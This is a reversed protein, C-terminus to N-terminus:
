AQGQNLRGADVCFGTAIALVASNADFEATETVTLAGNERLQLRIMGTKGNRAVWERAGVTELPDPFLATGASYYYAADDEAKPLIIIDAPLPISCDGGRCASDFKCAIRKLAQPTPRYEWQSFMVMLTVVVMFAAFSLVFERPDM